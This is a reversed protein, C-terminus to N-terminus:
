YMMNLCYATGSVSGVFFQKDTMEGNRYKKVDYQYSNYIEQQAEGSKLYEAFGTSFDKPYDKKCTEYILDTYEQLTCDKQANM